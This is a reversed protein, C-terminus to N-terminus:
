NRTTDVVKAYPRCALISDIQDALFKWDLQDKKAKMKLALMNMKKKDKIMMLAKSLDEVNPETWIAEPEKLQELMGGRRTCIIPLEAYIGLALVGSQTASTYPLVLVDAWTFLEGIEQASLYKDIVEIREDSSERFPFYSKGAIKLSLDTDAINEFAEMLLEIGKYPTLRGFFLINKNTKRRSFDIFSNELLGHPVIHYTKTALINGSVSNKVHQTLFVLEDALKIRCNEIQQLLWHDQGEHLKGDHVTYIIKKNFIKFLLMIPLDWNHSYPIYLISYRFLVDGILLTIKFPLYFFSNLFFSINGNYTKWKKINSCGTYEITTNKSVILDYPSKLYKVISRAYLPLSNKRGLSLILIKM